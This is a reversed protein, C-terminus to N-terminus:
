TGELELAGVHGALDEGGDVNRERDGTIEHIVAVNELVLVSAHIALIRTRGPM